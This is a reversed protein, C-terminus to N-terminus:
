CCSGGKPKGGEGGGRQNASYEAPDTLPNASFTVPTNRVAAASGGAIEDLDM